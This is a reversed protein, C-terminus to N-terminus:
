HFYQYKRKIQISIIFNANFHIFAYLHNLYCFINLLLHDTALQYILRNQKFLMVAGGRRCFSLAGFCQLAKYVQAQLQNIAQSINAQLAKATSIWAAQFSGDSKASVACLASEAKYLESRPAVKACSFQLFIYILHNELM